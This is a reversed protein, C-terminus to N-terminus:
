NLIFELILLDRVVGDGAIIQIRRLMQSRLVSLSAPDALEDEDVARLFSNLVDMIRPSLDGVRKEQGPEVELQASFKLNQARAEPGLSVILSDLPVFSYKRASASSSKHSAAIVDDLYGSYTVFFGAGGAVLAGATAVLFGRRMGRSSKRVDGATKGAPGTESLEAM